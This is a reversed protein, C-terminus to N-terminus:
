TQFLWRSMSSRCHWLLGDRDAEVMECPGGSMGSESSLEAKSCSTTFSISVLM